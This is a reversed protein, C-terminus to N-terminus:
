NVQSPKDQTLDFQNNAVGNARRIIDLSDNLYALANTLTLAEPQNKARAHRMLESTKKILELLEQEM